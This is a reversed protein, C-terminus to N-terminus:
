RSDARRPRRVRRDDYADAVGDSEPEAIPDLPEAVGRTIDLFEDTTARRAAATPTHIM